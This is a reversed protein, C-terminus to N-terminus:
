NSSSQIVSECREGMVVVQGLVVELVVGEMVVEVVEAGVVGQSVNRTTFLGSPRGEPRM